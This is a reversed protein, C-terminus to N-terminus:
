VFFSPKLSVKLPWTTNFHYCHLKGKLTIKIPSYTFHVTGCLKQLESEKKEQSPNLMLHISAKVITANLHNLLFYSTSRYEHM